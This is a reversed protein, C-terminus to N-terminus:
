RTTEAVAWARRTPIVRRIPPAVPATQAIASATPAEPAPPEKGVFLVARMRLEADDAVLQRRLEPARAREAPYHFNGFITPVDRRGNGVFAPHM